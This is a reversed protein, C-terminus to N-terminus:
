APESGSMLTGKYYLGIRQAPIYSSADPVFSYDSSQNYNSWDSKHVRVKIEVSANAPLTGGTFSIELYTDAGPRAPQMMVIKGVTNKCGITVYDCTFVQAQTTDSTYWYRITVDSLSIATSGTNTLKLAPQIQNSSPNSNGDQYDLTLVGQKVAVTATTTAGPTQGQQTTEGEGSMPFQIGKLQDQKQTNVTQWDDNLLGGTDISDPNWSWFTWNFGSSGKGLYNVLSSLWQKDKDTQLKTGFEGVYVPATGNKQVYGWYKDWVGPLNDPFNSVDLWSHDAVSAPYDHVSYVLQHQVNLKVPYSSVGELNGGWWYCSSDGGQTVGGTGYCEVGEVFILWNPNIALIANGARQAALRWDLAQDGCGWCAPNRPENHLDAGIVMPNNKYRQALMQWDAIWRSEPYANTYWLASQGSADPRHQDLIIHLGIGTAYTIIKDMLQVGQLGQLDPNKSYDISDPKSGPDFLQNSYPLRITNYEESKIQNLMDKYNRIQLGHVVFTNTEFGFWNVGAIRVPQNKADLIQAGDTHWPGNGVAQTQVTSNQVATNQPRTWIVITTGIIAVLLVAAIIVGVLRPSRGPITLPTTPEHHFPGTPENHLPVTPEDKM